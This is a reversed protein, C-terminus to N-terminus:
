FRKKSRMEKQVAKRQAISAVKEQTTKETEETTM